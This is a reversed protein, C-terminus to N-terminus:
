NREPFFNLPTVNTRMYIRCQVAFITQWPECLTSLALSNAATGTAVLYVAAEPAEFVNQILHRVKTMQSDEGYSPQYGKNAEVLADLVQQPVPSYNDSSFIM